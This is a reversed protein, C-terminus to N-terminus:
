SAASKGPDERRPGYWIDLGERQQLGKRGKFALRCLIQLIEWGSYARLKRGSTVVRERLVVFRGQKQLAKSIAAEEAAYM